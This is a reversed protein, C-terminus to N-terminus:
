TVKDAFQRRKRYKNIFYVMCYAVFDLKTRNNIFPCFVACNIRNDTEGASRIKLFRFLYINNIFKSNRLIVDYEDFVTYSLVVELGIAEDCIIIELTQATKDGKFLSPMGEIYSVENEKIEYDKYVLRSVSNGYKNQYWLQYKEASEKVGDGFEFSNAIIIECGKSILEDINTTVNEAAVNERLHIELNLQSATKQLGDYHSQCWNGDDKTGNLLLGVKTIEQTVTTDVEYINIVFIGIFIASIFAFAIIFIKKM